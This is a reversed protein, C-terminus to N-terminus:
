LVKRLVKSNRATDYLKGSPLADHGSLEFGRELFWHETQTTLVFLYKLGKAKAQLCVEDLIRDGRGERQYDPHVVFCALEASEYEPYPYLAACAIIANDRLNVTFAHLETELLERSRRVLVGQEELPQILEQIGNLDNLQAARVEDYSEESVMIGVGDRTFLEELIVGDDAYGLLHVRKVGARCAKSALRLLRSHEALSDSEILRALAQSDLQRIAQGEASVLASKEHGLYILKDAKLSQAIEMALDDYSLNFIEGTVAYGQATQIVMAGSQLHSSMSEHDVRRVQGTWGFDVGDIVGRPKAVIFNGSIVKIASGHMPSNVIGISLLAEVETRVRGYAEMICPLAEKSTVRMDKSFVTDISRSRLAQDIQPRAGLVLVIRIGLSVLLALDHITNIFNKHELAEGSVAFVM